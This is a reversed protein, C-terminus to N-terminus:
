KSDPLLGGLSQPLEHELGWAAILVCIDDRIALLLPCGLKPTRSFMTKDRSVIIMEEVKFYQRAAWYRETVWVPLPGTYVGKHVSYPSLDLVGVPQELGGAYLNLAEIWFCKMYPNWQIRLDIIECGLIEVAYKIPLSRKLVQNRAKFRKDEGSGFAPKPKVQFRYAKAYQEIPMSTITQIERM